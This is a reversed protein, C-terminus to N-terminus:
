VYNERTTSLKKRNIPEFLKAKERVSWSVDCPRLENNIDFSSHRVAQQPTVRREISQYRSINTSSNENSHIRNQNILGTTSQRSPRENFCEQDISKYRLANQRHCPRCRGHISSSLLIDDVPKM